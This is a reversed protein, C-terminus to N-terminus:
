VGLKTLRLEIERIWLQLERRVVNQNTQEHHRPAPPLIFM